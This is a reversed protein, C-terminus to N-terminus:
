SQRVKTGVKYSYIMPSINQGSPRNIEIKVKFSKVSAPVQPQSLYEVGPLRFTQDINQNFAIVEPIGYFPDEISAIRKWNLNDVSIYYKILDEQSQNLTGTFSSEASLTIYEVESSLDFQRSTM